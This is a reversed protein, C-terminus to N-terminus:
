QAVIRNEITAALFDPKKTDDVSIVNFPLAAAQKPTDVVVAKVDNSVAIIRQNKTSKYAGYASAATGTILAILGMISETAKLLGNIADPLAQLANTLAAADPQNILKLGVAAAVASSIATLGYRGAAFVPAPIKDIFSPNKSTLAKPDNNSMM